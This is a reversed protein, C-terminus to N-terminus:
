WPRRKVWNNVTRKQTYGMDVSKNKISDHRADIEPRKYNMISDLGLKFSAFEAYVAAMLFDDRAGIDKEWSYITKGDPSTRQIRRNAKLHDFYEDTMGIPLEVSNIFSNTDTQFRGIARDMWYTRDLKQLRMGAMSGSLVKESHFQGPPVNAYICPITKNAPNSCFPLVNRMNYGSDIVTLKIPFDKGSPTRFKAYMLMKSLMDFGQIKGYYVLHKTGHQNWSSIDIYFVESGQVDVGATIWLTDEPISNIAFGGIKKEFEEKTIAVSAPTYDEGMSQNIFVQLNAETKAQAYKRVLSKLDITPSYLQGIQMGRFQVNKKESDSLSSVYKGQRVIAFREYDEISKSCSPCFYKADGYNHDYIRVNNWSLPQWVNCHPCPVHFYEKTSQTHFLLASGRNKSTPHSWIFFKKFRRGATRQFAMDIASGIGPFDPMRDVEDLFVYTYPDSMLKNPSQSGAMVLKGSASRKVQLTEGFRKGSLFVNQLEPCMNLMYTFRDRSFEKAKEDTSIMYLTDAPRTMFLWGILNFAIETLGLQAGKMVVVGDYAPDAFADMIPALWPFFDNRWRGPRESTGDKVFRYLESWVSPLCSKNFKLSSLIIQSFAPYGMFIRIIDDLETSKGWDNTIIPSLLDETVAAM